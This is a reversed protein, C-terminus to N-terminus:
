LTFQKLLQTILWVLHEMVQGSAQRPRCFQQFQPRFAVSVHLPQLEARYQPEKQWCLSQSFWWLRQTAPGAGSRTFVGGSRM